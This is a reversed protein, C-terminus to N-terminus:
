QGATEANDNSKDHVQDDYRVRQQGFEQAALLASQTTTNAREYIGAVIVNNNSTIEHLQKQAAELRNILNKDIGRFSNVKSRFEQSTRVYHEAMLNKEDQM